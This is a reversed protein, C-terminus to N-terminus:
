RQAAQTIANMLALVTLEASTGPIVQQPNLLRSIFQNREAFDAGAAILMVILPTAGHNLPTLQAQAEQCAHSADTIVISPPRNPEFRLRTLLNLYSVCEQSQPAAALAQQIKRVQEQFESEVQARKEQCQQERASKGTNFFGSQRCDPWAPLTVKLVPTAQVSNRDGFRIVTVETASFFEPQQALEGCFAAVAHRYGAEDMGHVYGAYLHLRPLSQPPTALPCARILSLLLTLTLGIAKM